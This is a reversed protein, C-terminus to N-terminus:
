QGKLEVGRGTRIAVLAAELAFPTLREADLFDTVVRVEGYADMAIIVSRWGTPTVAQVAHLMAQLDEPTM